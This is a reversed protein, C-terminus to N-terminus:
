GKKWMKRWLKSLWHVKRPIVVPESVVPESVVPPLFNMQEKIMAEFEKRTYFKGDKLIWSAIKEFCYSNSLNLYNVINVMDPTKDRIIADLITKFGQEEGEYIMKVMEEVSFRSMFLVKKM